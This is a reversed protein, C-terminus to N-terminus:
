RAGATHLGALTFDLVRQLLVDAARTDRARRSISASLRRRWEPREVARTLLTELEAADRFTAEGLGCYLARRPRGTLL